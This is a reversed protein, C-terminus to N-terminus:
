THQILAYSLQTVNFGYVQHLKLASINNSSVGTNIIKGGRLSIDLITFYLNIFGLGIHLFNKYICGLFANYTTNNENYYIEFGVQHEKYKSLLMTAGNSLLDKSWLAYRASSQKAGFYPDKAIKDTTFIEEERIKNLIQDYQSPQAISYSIHPLFRKYCSPINVSKINLRLRINTEIFRFNHNQAYFLADTNGSEIHIVKYEANYDDIIEFLESFDEHAGVYFECGIVGLNRKEWPTEKIVM